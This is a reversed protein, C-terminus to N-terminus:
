SVKRLQNEKSKLSYGLAVTGQQTHEPKVYCEMALQVQKSDKFQQAATNCDICNRANSSSINCDKCRALNWIKKHVKRGERAYGIRLNVNAEVCSRDELQKKNVAVDIHIDSNSAPEVSNNCCNWSPENKKFAISLQFSDMESALNDLRADDRGDNVGLNLVLKSNKSAKFERGTFRDTVVMAYPTRNLIYSAVMARLGQNSVSSLDVNQSSEVPIVQGERSSGMVGVFSLTMVFFLIKNKNIFFYSKKSKKLKMSFLKRNNIIKIFNLGRFSINM